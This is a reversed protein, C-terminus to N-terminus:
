SKREAEIANLVANEIEPPLQVANMKRNIEEVFLKEFRFKQACARCIALHTAVKKTEDRLLERDLFDDLRELAERCGYLDLPGLKLRKM